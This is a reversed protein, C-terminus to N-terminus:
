ALISLEFSPNPPYTWPARAPRRRGSLGDAGLCSCARPEAPQIRSLSAEQDSRSTRTSRGHRSGISRPQPRNRVHATQRSRPQLGHRSRRGAERKRRSATSALKSVSQDLQRARQRRAVFAVAALVVIVAIVILIIATTSM